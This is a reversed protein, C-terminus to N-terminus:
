VVGHIIRTLDDYGEVVSTDLTTSLYRARGKLGLDKAITSKVKRLVSKIGNEHAAIYAATEHEVRAVFSNDRKRGEFGKIIIANCPNAGLITLLEQLFWNVCQQRSYGRPFTVHGSSVLTPKAKTGDLVAYAYDTSSCRLGLIM